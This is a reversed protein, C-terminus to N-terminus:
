AQNLTVIYLILALFLHASLRFHSVYPASALGSKVMYWGMFAQMLILIWCFITTLKSSRSMNGCYILTSGILLFFLGMFRAANRHLYELLYIRKFSELDMGYNIKLYEPSSQYKVFEILWEAENLPPIAGTVPRWEIISLGSGTLRTLGGIGVMGLVMFSSLIFFFLIPWSDQKRDIHRM